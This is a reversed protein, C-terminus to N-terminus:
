TGLDDTDRRTQALELNVPHIDDGSDLSHLVRPFPDRVAVSREDHLHDGVTVSTVRADDGV